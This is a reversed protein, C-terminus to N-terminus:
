NSTQWAGELVPLATAVPDTDIDIWRIRPDRRFWREQRVAFQRTRTIIMEIAADLTCMGDLHDFLEKYGLAQRATRSIPTEALLEVEAVLGADIMRHVREAIRETLVPRPWRLGFQAFAIPPYTDIGPGFSSFSRGSGITVELARVVRRANNPEMKAAAAPDLAVLQRHLAEAGEVAVRQDLEARVEPWRGPVEMPDTVSRLYLGTGAVLLARNDRAHIEDLAHRVAVAFDTVTFEDAADVLDLCHHRVEAQDDPSPKATGINMRRYVQMADVAILETDRQRVAFAM